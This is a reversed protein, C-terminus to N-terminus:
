CSLVNGHAMLPPPPPGLPTMSVINSEGWKYGIQFFSSIHHNLLLHVQGLDDLSNLHSPTLNTFDFMTVWCHASKNRQVIHAFTFLLPHHQIKSLSGQLLPTRSAAPGLLATRRLICLCPLCLFKETFSFM